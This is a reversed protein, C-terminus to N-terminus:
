GLVVTSLCVSHCWCSEFYCLRDGDRSEFGLCVKWVTESVQFRASFCILRHPYSGHLGGCEMGQDGYAQPWIMICFVNLGVEALRLWNLFSLSLAIEQLGLLILILFYIVCKWSVIACFICQWELLVFPYITIFYQVLVLDFGLLAFEM